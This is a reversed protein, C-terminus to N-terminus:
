KILSLPFCSIVFLSPEPVGIAAEHDWIECNTIVTITAARYRKRIVVLAPLMVVNGGIIGVTYTIINKLESKACGWKKFLFFNLGALSLNAVFVWCIILLRLM